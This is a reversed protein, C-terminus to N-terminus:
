HRHQKVVSRCVVKYRIHSASAGGPPSHELLNITKQDKISQYVTIDGQKLEITKSGTKSDMKELYSNVPRQSVRDLLPVSKVYRYTEIGNLTEQFDWAQLTELLDWRPRYTFSRELTGQVMQWQLSQSDIFVTYKPTELRNLGEYCEKPTYGIVDIDSADYQERMPQYIVYIKKRPLISVPFCQVKTSGPRYGPNATQFNKEMEDLDKELESGLLESDEKESESSTSPFYTPDRIKRIATSSYHNSKLFQDMEKQLSERVKFDKPDQDKPNKLCESCNIQLSYQNLYGFSRGERHYLRFAYEFITEMMKPPYNWIMEQLFLVNEDTKKMRQKYVDIKECELLSTQLPIRLLKSKEVVPCDNHTHDPISRIGRESIAWRNLFRVLSNRPDLSQVKICRIPDEEKFGICQWWIWEGKDNKSGDTILPRHDKQLCRGVQSTSIWAQQERHVMQEWQNQKQTQKWEFQSLHILFLRELSKQKKASYSEEWTEQFSLNFDVRTAVMFHISGTLPNLYKKELRFNLISQKGQLRHVDLEIVLSWEPHKCKLIFLNPTLILVGKEYEWVLFWYKQFVPMKFKEPIWQKPYHPRTLPIGYQKFIRDLQPHINSDIIRRQVRVRAIMDRYLVQRNEFYHCNVPLSHLFGVLDLQFSQVWQLIEVTFQFHQPLQDFPNRPLNNQLLLSHIKQVNLVKVWHHLFPKEFAMTEPVSDKWNMRFKRLRQVLRQLQGQKKPVIQKQLLKKKKESKYIEVFLQRMLDRTQQITQNLVSFTDERRVTCIGQCFYKKKKELRTGTMYPKSILDFTNREM